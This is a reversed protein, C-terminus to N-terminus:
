PWDSAPALFAGRTAMALQWFASAAMPDGEMPALIVNVPIGDPLSNLAQNFYKLRDRGSAKAGAVGSGQTPLGDTILYINDPRPNMAAAAQFAGLLSTGAAPTVADLAAIAKDLQERNAVPLWKGATDPLVPAAGTNFVYIQYESDRPLQTSLWDVTAVARRWKPARRQVTEPMNRMRIVNVLTNDLMSASRDLLVLIRRGGLKLGTLYQRDGDGTFRRVDTGQQKEGEARLRENQEELQKLDAKLQNVHESSALTDKDDTSLEERRRRIEALIERSRGKAEVASEDVMAITNRLEALGERGERVERELFNVEGILDRNAEESRVDSAHDIVLFVLITAGFGCSMIDLFSLSFISFGRRKRAM